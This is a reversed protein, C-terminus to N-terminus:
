CLFIRKPVSFVTIAVPNDGKGTDSFDFIKQQFGRNVRTGSKEEGGRRDNRVFLFSTTPDSIGRRVERGEERQNSAEGEDDVGGDARAGGALRM